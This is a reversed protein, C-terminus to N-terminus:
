GFWTGSPRGARGPESPGARTVAGPAYSRHTYTGTALPARSPEPHFPNVRRRNPRARLRLWALPLAAGGLAAAGLTWGLEAPGTPHGARSGHTRRAETGQTAHAERHAAQAALIPATAARQRAVSAPDDVRTLRVIRGARIEAQATGEVPGLGHLAQPPGDFDRYRWTATAGEARYEAAETRHGLRFLDRAWARISASGRVWAFGAGPSADVFSDVIWQEQADWVAEPVEESRRRVVADPGFRALVAELDHANWAATYARAFAVLDAAEGDPGHSGNAIGAANAAEAPEALPAPPAARYPAATGSASGALWVAVLV